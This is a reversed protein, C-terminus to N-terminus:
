TRGHDEGSAGREGSKPAKSPKVTPKPAKSPQATPKAAKSPKVKPSESPKPSASASASPSVKVKKGCDSQAAQSVQRGRGPGKPLSQAYNSVNQGHNLSPNCSFSAFPVPSAKGNLVATATDSRNEAGKGRTGVTATPTAASSGAAAPAASNQSVASLAITGGGVAGATVAATGAVLAVTKAKVALLTLLSM